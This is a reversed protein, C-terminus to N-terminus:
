SEGQGMLRALDANVRQLDLEPSAYLVQRRNDATVVYLRAGHNIEQSAGGERAAFDGYENALAQAQRFNEPRVARFNQGLVEMVGNLEQQSDNEPDLTVFVFQVPYDSWHDHLAKLNLLQLPCVTGCSRYGFFVVNLGADPVKAGPLSPVPVNTKYGYFGTEGDVRHLLGQAFPLAVAMALATLLLIFPASKM